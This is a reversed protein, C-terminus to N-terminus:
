NYFNSLLSKLKLKFLYLKLYKFNKQEKIKEKNTEIWNEIERAHLEVKNRSLNSNHLRYIALIDHMYGIKKKESLRLILDFDGIINFENNFSYHKFINKNLCITGIGVTYEKLLDNLIMGSFSKKKFRIIKKNKKENLIYYNSYVIELDKNQFFFNVQKELKDAIWMDDTDLFSIYKGKANQIALNRSEYLNKFTESKFYKIRQDTFNKVIEKSKDTSVNDWFILEWNKYTQSIISKISQELYKEGNHCNMIVSVLPKTKHM